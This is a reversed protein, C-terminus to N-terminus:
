AEAEAEAEAGGGAAAATKLKGLEKDILWLGQGEEGILDFLDLIRRCLQEEERQETVYWQMFQFTAFDKEKFCTDVIENISKTVKIEQELIFEFMSRLSEFSNRIGQLDPGIAHGGSDNVYRILKMMHMREEDTHMYLFGAAGDYGEKHCWSACALYQQSAKSEMAIQENLKDEIGKSLSTKKSLTPKKKTNKM